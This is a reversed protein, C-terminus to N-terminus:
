GVRELRVGARPVLKRAPHPARVASLTLALFLMEGVWWWRSATQARPLAWLGALLPAALARRDRSAAITLAAFVLGPSWYYSFNAPETLPRLLLIFGVLPVLDTSRRFRWGVATALGLALFRNAQTTHAGLWAPGFWVHGPPGGVGGPTLFASLAEKADIGVFVAVLVAPLACAAILTRARSERPAAFLLLPILVVAWQKFSVAVSLLLAARVQDGNRLRRVAYVVFALALVDELHGWEVEPVLALVAAVAQVLWLRRRMGLDWALGRVAHLLVAGFALLYATAVLAQNHDPTATGLVATLPAVLAFSLPLAYLGSGSRYIASLHGTWLQHGAKTLLGLDLPAWGAYGPQFVKVLQTQYLLALGMFAITIGASSLWARRDKDDM